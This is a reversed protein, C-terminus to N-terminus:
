NNSRQNLAEYAANIEKMRREAVERIEPGMDAVKDPHYEQVRRRYAAKIEEPSAHQPIQLVEYPSRPSSSRRATSDPAEPRNDNRPRQGFVRSVLTVVLPVILIALLPRLMSVFLLRLM